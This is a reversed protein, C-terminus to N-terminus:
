RAPAVQIDGVTITYTQALQYCGTVSNKL